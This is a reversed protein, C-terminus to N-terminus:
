PADQDPALIVVPNAGIGQIFAIINADDSMIYIAANWDLQKDVPLSNFAGNLTAASIGSAKIRNRITLKLVRYRAAPVAQMDLTAQSPQAGLKAVNWFAIIEAQGDVQTTKWDGVGYAIAQSSLFAKIKDNLTTM